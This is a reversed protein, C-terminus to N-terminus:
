IAERKIMGNRNTIGHAYHPILSQSAQAIFGNFSKKTM